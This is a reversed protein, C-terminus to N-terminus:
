EVFGLIFLLGNGRLLENSDENERRKKRGWVLCFQMMLDAAVV